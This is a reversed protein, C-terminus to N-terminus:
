FSGLGGSDLLANGVMDAGQMIAPLISLVFVSAAFIHEKMIAISLASTPVRLAGRM